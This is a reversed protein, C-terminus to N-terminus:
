TAEVVFRDKVAEKRGTEDRRLYVAEKAKVENEESRGVV